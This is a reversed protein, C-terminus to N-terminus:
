EPKAIKQKALEVGVVKDCQKRDASAAVAAEDNDISFKVNEPTKPLKEMDRNKETLVSVKKPAVVVSSLFVCKKFTKSPSIDEGDAVETIIPLTRRSRPVEKIDEDPFKLAKRAPSTQIARIQAISARTPTKKLVIKASVDGVYGEVAFGL